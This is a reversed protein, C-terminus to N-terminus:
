DYALVHVLRLVLYTCKRCMFAITRDGHHKPIHKHTPHQFSCTLLGM